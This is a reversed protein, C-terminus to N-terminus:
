DQTDWTSNATVWLLRSGVRCITNELYKQKYFHLFENNFGDNFKVKFHTLYVQSSYGTNFHSESQTTVFTEMSTVDIIPKPLIMLSLVNEDNLKFMTPWEYLNVIYYGFYSIM